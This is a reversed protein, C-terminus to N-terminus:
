FSDGLVSAAGIILREMSLKKDLLYPISAYMGTHGAHKSDYYQVLRVSISLFTCPASNAEQGM